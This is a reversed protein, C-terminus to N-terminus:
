EWLMKPKITETKLPALGQSERKRRELTQEKVLDRLLKINSVKGFYVDAPTLNDLAKHVRQHSYQEVFAKLERELEETLYYHQLKVVNKMTRHYHGIKGQTMPHYLKGRTHTMGKTDLYDRRQGSIYCSGNDSLLRPRYKVKVSGIGNKSIALSLTDSVDTATMGAALKWAVIYRSYDDLVTSLYDWGWGIIKFYTFDTPWLEHARKNKQQFKM